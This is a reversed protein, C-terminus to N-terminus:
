VRGACKRKLDIKNRSHERSYDLGSKGSPGDVFNKSYHFIGQKECLSTVTGAHQFLSPVAIHVKKAAASELFDRLLLDKPAHDFRERVYRSLEPVHAAPFVLAQL